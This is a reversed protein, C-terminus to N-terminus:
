VEMCYTALMDAQHTWLINPYEKIAKGLVDWESKDVFAGMHYRICMVEEMTLKIITSSIMVSKEGHGLLVQNNNWTIKSECVEYSDCKCLDHFLGIIIPSCDRQWVLNNDITLKMLSDTVNLSHEALGGTYAGHYKTSAPATFYGLSKLKEEVGDVSSDPFGINIYNIIKSYVESNTM